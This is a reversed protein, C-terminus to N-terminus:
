IGFINYAITLQSIFKHNNVIVFSATSFLFFAFISNMSSAIFHLFCLFYLYTNFSLSAFYSLSLFKHSFYWLFFSHRSHQCNESFSLRNKAIILSPDCRDKLIKTPPFHNLDLVRPQSHGMLWMILSKM